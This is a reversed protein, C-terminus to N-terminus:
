SINNIRGLIAANEAPDDSFVRAAKYRGYQAETIIDARLAKSLVVPTFSSVTPADVGHRGTVSDLPGAPTFPPSAVRSREVLQDATSKTLNAVMTGVSGVLQNSTDVSKQLQELREAQAALAANSVAKENALAKRLTKIEARRDAQEQKLLGNQESLLENQSLLAKVLPEVDLVDDTGLQLDKYGPEPPKKPKEDTPEDRDGSGEVAGDGAAPTGENEEDDTEEGGEDEDDQDEENEDEDDNRTEPPAEDKKPMPAPKGKRLNELFGLLGNGFSALLGATKPDTVQGHAKMAKALEELEEESPTQNESSM